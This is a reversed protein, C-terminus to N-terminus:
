TILGDWSYSSTLTKGNDTTVQVKLFYIGETTPPEPIKSMQAINSTLYTSQHGPSLYPFYIFTGDDGPFVDPMINQETSITTTDLLKKYPIGSQIMKPTKFEYVAFINTTVLFSLDNTSFDIDKIYITGVPDGSSGSTKVAIAKDYNGLASVAVTEYDLCFIPMDIHNPNDVRIIDKLSTTKITHSDVATWTYQNTNNLLTLDYKKVITGGPYYEDGDHILKGNTDIKFIGQLQNPVLKNPLDPTGLYTVAFSDNHYPQYIGNKNANSINICIDDHYTTGYTSAVDFKIFKANSPTTYIHENDPEVTRIISNSIFSYNDTNKVKDSYAFIRVTAPCNIYYKTNPIVPIFNKSRIKNTITNDIAGPKTSDNLAGVEWQEDWQNFGVVKPPFASVSIFAGTSYYYNYAIPIFNHFWELVLSKNVDNDSNYLNNASTKGFMQTLDFVLDGLTTNITTAASPKECSWVNNIKKIYVHNATLSTTTLSGDVLQNWNITGGILKTDLRKITNNNNGTIRMTYFSDDTITNSFELLANDSMSSKGTIGNLSNYIYYAYLKAGFTSPHTRDPMLQNKLAVEDDINTFPGHYGNVVSVGYQLGVKYMEYGVSTLQADVITQWYLNTANAGVGLRPIPTNIVIQWPQIGASFLTEIITVLATKMYETSISNPEDNRLNRLQYFLMDNTGGNIMILPTKTKNETSNIWETIQELVNQPSYSQVNPIDPQYQQKTSLTAGGKAWNYEQLGMLESFYDMVGMEDVIEIGPRVLSSTHNNFISDGFVVVSDFENMHDTCTIINNFERQVNVDISVDTISFNGTTKHYNIFLGSAEIDTAAILRYYVDSEQGNNTYDISHQSYAMPVLNGSIENTNVILNDVKMRFNNDYMYTFRYIDWDSDSEITTVGTTNDQLVLKSNEAFLFFDEPVLAVVARGSQIAYSKAFPQLQMYTVRNALTDIKNQLINTGLHLANYIYNALVAAGYETPHTSDGCVHILPYLGNLSNFFARYGNIVNCKTVIGIEYMAYGIATLEADYRAVSSSATIYSGGHRGKPIPTMIVIQWPQVGISKLLEIITYTVGYISYWRRGIDPTIGDELTAVGDDYQGLFNLGYLFQDNTGGDIVYLTKSHDENAQQGGCYTLVQQLINGEATIQHATLTAGGIAQVELQVGMLNSLQTSVGNGIVGSYIVNALISDGFAVLKNFTTNNPLTIHNDFDKCVDIVISISRIAYEYEQSVLNYRSNLLLGDGIFPETILNTQNYFNLYKVNYNDIKLKGLISYVGTINPNLEINDIHFVLANEGQYNVDHNIRGLINSFSYEYINWNDAALEDFQSTAPNIGIYHGQGSSKLTFDEPTLTLYIRGDKYLDGNIIADNNKNHQMQLFDLNQNKLEASLDAIREWYKNVGPTQNNDAIRSKYLYGDSYIAYDNKDYTHSSDWIPATNSAGLTNTAIQNEIEDMLAETIPDGPDWDHVQYIAM